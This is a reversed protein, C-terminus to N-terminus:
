KSQGVKRVKAMINCRGNLDGKRFWPEGQRYHQSWWGEGRVRTEGSIEEVVEMGKDSGEVKDGEKFGTM